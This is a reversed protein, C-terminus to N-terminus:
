RGSGPAPAVGEVTNAVTLGNNFSYKYKLAPYSYVDVSGLAYDGVVFTHGIDDVKGYIGVAGAPEAYPTAAGTYPPAWRYITGNNTTNTGVAILNGTADVSLGYIYSPGTGTLLACAGGGGVFEYVSAGTSLFLDGAADAAINFDSGSFCPGIAAGAPGAGVIPYIGDGVTSVYAKAGHFAVDTPQNNIVATPMAVSHLLAGCEPVNKFSDLSRTGGQPIFLQGGENSGIGNPYSATANMCEAAANTTNPMEYLPVDISYFMGVYLDETPVLNTKIKTCINLAAGGPFHVGMM